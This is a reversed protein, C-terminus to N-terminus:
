IYYRQHLHIALPHTQPPHPHGLCRASILLPSPASAPGPPPTTHRCVKSCAETAESVNVERFILHNFGGWWYTKRYYNCGQFPLGTDGVIDAAFRKNRVGAHLLGEENATEYVLECVRTSSVATFGSEECSTGNEVVRVAGIPAIPPM